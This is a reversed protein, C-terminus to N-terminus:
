YTFVRESGTPSGEVKSIIKLTHPKGDKSFPIALNTVFQGTLQSDIKSYLDAIEQPTNAELYVGGTKDAISRISSPDFASGKIGVAFVPLSLQSAREIVSSESATTSATDAGDTLVTVAKRGCNPTKEIATTLADYLATDGEPLITNIADRVKNKDITMDVLPSVRHDFKIVGAQDNQKLRGVYSAAASKANDMAAGAMSGSHDIVLMNALPLKNTDVSSFNFNSVKKGDLYVEVDQKSFNTNVTGSEASVSIYASLQKPNCTDIQNIRLTLGKLNRFSTTAGSLSSATGRFQSGTPETSTSQAESDTQLDAGTGMLAYVAVGILVLLIVSIISSGIILVKRNM